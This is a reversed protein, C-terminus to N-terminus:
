AKLEDAAKELRQAEEAQGDERLLGAMALLVPKLAPHQAGLKGKLLALAWAAQALAEDRQGMQGYFGALMQLAEVVLVPDHYLQTSAELALLLSREASRYDAQAQFRRAQELHAKVDEV